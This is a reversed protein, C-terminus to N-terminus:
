AVQAPKLGRGFRVRRTIGERHTEDALIPEGREVQVLTLKADGLQTCLDLFEAQAGTVVRLESGAPLKVGAADLLEALAKAARQARDAIIRVEGM